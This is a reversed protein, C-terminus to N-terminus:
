ASPRRGATTLEFHGSHFDREIARRRTRGIMQTACNMTASSTAMTFM